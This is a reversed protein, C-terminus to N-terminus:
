YDGLGTPDSDDGDDPGEGGPIRNWIIEIGTYVRQQKGDIMTRDSGIEGDSTFDNTFKQQSSVAPIGRDRCFRLYANYTESKSEKEAPNKEVAASKFKGISSGWSEWTDRTEHPRRDGTFGGQELLRDLGDLAWNLVGSLEERLKGPLMPDRKDRPITTPFAVLLIRRYFADDDVAADPLQNAAYMHKATPEITFTPQNKEEVKIPDGSVIEKFKGTNKLMQDDIDNRINAWAGHLDVAAFREEILEHPTISCVAEDGLLDRMLDLFTSKGSAQPGVLFLAKHFPLQSHLLTYGAFEQLKKADQTSPTVQQIFSDFLPAEADPDYEAPSKGRFLQSPDHPELTRDRVDLLGNDVNFKWVEGDFDTQLEYNRARISQVATNENTMSYHRNLNDAVYSRVVPEGRDRYYGEDPDYVYLVDTQEDTAFERRQEIARVMLHRADSKTIDNNQERTLMFRRRVEKWSIAAEGDGSGHHETTEGGGPQEVDDTDPRGRDDERATGVFEPIQAGRDRLADVADFFDSGSPYESPDSIIREELAVLQLCDLRHNGKRYLFHDDFMALRTGSESTEWSPDMSKVGDAREETVTSRVRIDSPDTNAIADFIVDHSTTEEIGDLDSQTTTPEHEHGPKIENGLRNFLDHGMEGLDPASVPTEAIHEGTLAFFRASAYVELHPDGGAEEVHDWGPLETEFSPKMGEPISGYGFGHLGTGSTSLFTALDYQEIMEWAEPHIAGSGPDRCNDFDFYILREITNDEYAPVCSAVGFGPLKESWEAATGYDVWLDQEKWSVFKDHRDTHEYPARPIKRGRSLKWNFWRDIALLDALHVPQEVTYETHPDDGM